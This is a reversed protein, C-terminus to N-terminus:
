LAKTLVVYEIETSFLTVIQQKQFAWSIFVNTAMFIYSKTSKKININRAYELDIYELLNLHPLLDYSDNLQFNELKKIM